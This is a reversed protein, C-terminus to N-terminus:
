PLSVATRLARSLAGKRRPRDVSRLFIIRQLAVSILENQLLLPERKVRLGKSCLEKKSEVLQLVEDIV